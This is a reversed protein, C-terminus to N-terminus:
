GAFGPDKLEGIPSITIRRAEMNKLPGANKFVYDLEKKRISGDPLKKDVARDAVNAEHADAFAMTGAQNVTCLRMTRLVDDHKLRVFDGRILRM